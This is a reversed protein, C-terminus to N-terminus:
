LELTATKGQYDIAVERTGINEEDITIEIAETVAEVVRSVLTGAESLLYSYVFIGRSGAIERLEKANAWLSGMIIVFANSGKVQAILDARSIASSNELGDTACILLKAAQDRTTLHSIGMSVGDYLATGGREYASDGEIAALVQDKSAGFAARERVQDEFTLYEMEMLSGLSAGISGFIKRSTKLDGNTMSGSYDAVLSLSGYIDGGSAARALSYSPESLVRGDVSVGVGNARIENLSVTSGGLGTVVFYVKRKGDKSIKQGLVILRDSANDESKFENNDTLFAETKAKGGDACSCALWSTMLGLCLIVANRSLESCAQAVKMM